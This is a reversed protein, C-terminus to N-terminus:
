AAEREADAPCRALVPLNHEVAIRRLDSLEELGPAGRPYGGWGV